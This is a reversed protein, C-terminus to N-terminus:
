SFSALRREQGLGNTRRPRNSQPRRSPPTSPAICEGHGLKVEHITITAPKRCPTRVLLQAPVAELTDKVTVVAHDAKKPISFPLASGSFWASTTAGCTSSVTVQMTWVEGVRWDKYTNLGVLQRLDWIVAGRTSAEYFVYPLPVTVVAEDRNSGASKSRSGSAPEKNAASVSTM